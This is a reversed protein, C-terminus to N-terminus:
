VSAGLETTAKHIYVLHAQQSTLSRFYEALRERWNLRHKYNHCTSVVSVVILSFKM